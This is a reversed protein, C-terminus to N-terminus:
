LTEIYSIIEKREDQGLVEDLVAELTDHWANQLRLMMDTGTDESFIQKEDPDLIIERTINSNKINLIKLKQEQSLTPLELARQVAADYRKIENSVDVIKGNYHYITIKEGFQEPMLNRLLFKAANTDGNALQEERMVLRMEGTKKDKYYRRKEIKHALANSYLSKILGEDNNEHYYKKGDKIAKGIKPYKKKWYCLTKETVDFWKCLQKQTLGYLSTLKYIFKATDITIEKSFKKHALKDEM